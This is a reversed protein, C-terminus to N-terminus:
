HCLSPSQTTAALLSLFPPVPGNVRTRYISRDGKGGSKAEVGTSTRLGEGDVSRQRVSVGRRVCRNVCHVVQIESDSLTERRNVRAM